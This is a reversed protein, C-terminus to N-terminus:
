RAPEEIAESPARLRAQISRELRLPDLRYKFVKRGELVGVPIQEGFDREWRPDQEVDREEIRLGYRSVFPALAEKAQDCLHCGPRGYLVLTLTAM